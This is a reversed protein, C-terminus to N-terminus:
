PPKRRYIRDGHTGGHALVISRGVPSYASPGKPEEEPDPVESLKNKAEQLQWVRAM